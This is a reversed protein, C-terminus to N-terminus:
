EYDLYCMFYEVLIKKWTFFNFVFWNISSISLSALGIARGELM